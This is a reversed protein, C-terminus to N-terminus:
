RFCCVSATKPSDGPWWSARRPGAPAGPLNGSGVATRHARSCGRGVPRDRRPVPVGAAPVWGGAASRAGALSALRSCGGCIGKSRTACCGITCTQVDVSPCCLRPLAGLRRCETHRNSEQSTPGLPRSGSEQGGGGAMSHSELVALAPSSDSPCCLYPCDAPGCATNVAGRARPSDALPQARAAPM